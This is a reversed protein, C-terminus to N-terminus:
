AGAGIQSADFQAVRPHPAAYEERVGYRRALENSCDHAFLRDSDYQSDRCAKIACMLAREPMDAPNPDRTM